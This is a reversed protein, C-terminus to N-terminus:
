APLHRPFSIKLSVRDLYVIRDLTAVLAEAEPGTSLRNWRDISQVTYRCCVCHEGEQWLAYDVAGWARQLDWHAEMWAQYDAVSKQDRFINRYTIVAEDM